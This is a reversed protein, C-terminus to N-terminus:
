MSYYAIITQRETDTFAALSALINYQRLFVARDVVTCSMAILDQLGMWQKYQNPKGPWAQPFRLLYVQNLATKNKSYNAFYRLVTRWQAQFDPEKIANVIACYLAFNKVSGTAANMPKGPAMTDLYDDFVSILLKEASSGNQLRQAKYSEFETPASAQASLNTSTAFFGTVTAM